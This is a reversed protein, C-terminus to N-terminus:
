VFGLCLECAGSFWPQVSSGSPVTAGCAIPASNSPLVRVQVRLVTTAACGAPVCTARHLCSCNELACQPDGAGWGTVMQWGGCEAM